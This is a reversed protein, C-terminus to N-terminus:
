SKFTTGTLPDDTGLGYRLDGALAVGFVEATQTADDGVIEAYLFSKGSTLESAKVDVVGQKVLPGGASLLTLAKGTLAVGGSTADTAVEFVQLTLDADTDTYTSDAGFIFSVKDIVSMDIANNFAKDVNVVAQSDFTSVVKTDEQLLSGM